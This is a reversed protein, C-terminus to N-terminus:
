EDGLVEKELRELRAEVDSPSDTDEHFKEVIGDEGAQELIELDDVINDIRNRINTRRERKQKKEADEDLDKEGKFLKRDDGTLLGRNQM